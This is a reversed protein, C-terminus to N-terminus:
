IFKGNEKKNAYRNLIRIAACAAGFGNDINVVAVGEACSCLMSMLAAWGKLNVGYGVSTPVAIIPQPFIGGVVSPLAGEMGAVVIIVDSKKLEEAKSMLRHLGAVGIDYYRQPEVGFFNATKYAEEAVPIDATGACCIAVKGRVPEIAKQIVQFTQSVKDYELKGFEIRLKEGKEENVRTGFINQGKALIVDVIKRIQECSKGEGYVVESFGSRLPRHTDLNAFGIDLCPIHALRQLGEDASLKGEAIEKLLKLMEQRNM